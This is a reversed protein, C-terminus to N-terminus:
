YKKFGFPSVEELTHIRYEGNPKTAIILGDSPMFEVMVQRCVGCPYIFDDLDSVIVVVEISKEGESIAKFIAVREACITPTHSVSEINCGSYSKGSSAIAIAGVGFNSYPHYGNKQAEMAQQILTSITFEKGSVIVTTQM